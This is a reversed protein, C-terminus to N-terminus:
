FLKPAEVIELEETIEFILPKGTPLNLEMIKEDSIKLLHKM